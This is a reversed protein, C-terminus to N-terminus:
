KKLRCNYFHIHMQRSILVWNLTHIYGVAIIYTTGSFMSLLYILFSYSNRFIISNTNITVSYQHRSAYFLIKFLKVM